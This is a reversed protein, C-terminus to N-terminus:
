SEKQITRRARLWAGLASFVATLANRAPTVPAAIVSTNRTMALAASQVGAVRRGWGRGFVSWTKLAKLFALRETCIATVLQALDIRSAAAIVENTVTSSRDPLNLIRRLVKGARGVGSNVGYDFVAYDVGDPLADCRLVSWYRQRYIDRAVSQPMARVDAATADSKWYRRADALTIGFNTPGGPDSPHNGYGGEDRLLRRLAEDFNRSAM